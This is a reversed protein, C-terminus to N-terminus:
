TQGQVFKPPKAGSRGLQNGRLALFLAGAMLLPLRGWNSLM